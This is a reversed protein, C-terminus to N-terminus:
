QLSLTKAIIQLYDDLIAIDIRIRALTIRQVLPESFRFTLPKEPQIGIIHQQRPCQILHSLKNVM